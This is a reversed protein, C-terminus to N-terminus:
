KVHLEELHQALTQLLGAPRILSLGTFCYLLQLVRCSSIQLFYYSSAAHRIMEYFLFAAHRIMIMFFPQQEAKLASLLRKLIMLIQNFELPVPFHRMM